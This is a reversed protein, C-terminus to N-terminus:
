GLGTGSKKKILFGLSKEMDAEGTEVGGDDDM